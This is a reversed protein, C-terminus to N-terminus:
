GLGVDGDTGLVVDDWRDVTSNPADIFEANLVDDELLKREEPQLIKGHTSLIPIVLFFLTDEDAEFDFGVKSAMGIVGLNPLHETEAEIIDLVDIFAEGLNEKQSTGKLEGSEIYWTM